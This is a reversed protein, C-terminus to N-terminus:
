ANALVAERAAQVVEHPLREFDLLVSIDTPSQVDQHLSLSQGALIYTPSVWNALLKVAGSAPNAPATSNLIPVFNTVAGLDIAM